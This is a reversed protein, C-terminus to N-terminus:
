MKGKHGAEFEYKYCESIVGEKLVEYHVGVCKRGM